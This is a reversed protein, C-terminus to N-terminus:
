NSKRQKITMLEKRLVQAMIEYGKENPHIGDIALEVNLYNNKDSMASAYDIYDYGNEVAYNKLWSNFEVIEKTIDKTSRNKDFEETVPIMSALIPRIGNANALQTMMIVNDRSIEFPINHSINIECLKIIVAEPKLDIVDHKFRLLYQGSFQGGIGKNILINDDFYKSINWDQTISAGLLVIKGKSYQTNESQHVKSFQTVWEETASWALIMNKRYYYAKYLIFISLLNVCISIVLIIILLRNM